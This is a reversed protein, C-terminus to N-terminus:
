SVGEELRVQEAPKLAQENLAQISPFTKGAHPPVTSTQTAQPEPVPPAAPEEIVPQQQPSPPQQKTGTAAQAPQAQVAAAAEREELDVQRYSDDWADSVRVAEVVKNAKPTVFLKYNGGPKWHSVRGDSNRVLYKYEIEM